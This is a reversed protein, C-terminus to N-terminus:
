AVQAHRNPSPQYYADFAACALRVAQPLDKSVTVSRGVVKALGDRELPHLAPLCSDLHNAPFGAATCADGLDVHLACMFQEIVQRRLGDEASLAYGNQQPLNGSELMASYLEIKAPNQVYGQAFQSIASAGLGILTTHPDATYGQFNRRLEGQRMAQVLPDNPRAYHDLGIAVYGAQTLYNAAEDAMACRTAHDPLTAADILRMAKKMWPVHAYGFLAIREPQLLMVKDLTARFGDLTQKPLGYVLDFSIHQLGYQAALRLTEYVTRFPQVRNIAEQVRPDFDQVGISLRNVGARAYAAMKAETVGRPDLEIAIESDTNITFAEALHSMLQIFDQAQLMSPSGGGFHIHGVPQRRGLRQAVLTIERYLHQLYREVPEYRRSIRTHCGCYWCQQPCYPLHLYLSVVEDAPLEALWQARTGAPLAHFHPATPYSTYRPVPPYTALMDALSTM